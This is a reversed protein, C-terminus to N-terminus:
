INRYNIKLINPAPQPHLDGQCPFHGAAEDRATLCRLTVRCWLLTSLETVLTSSIDLGELQPLTCLDELFPDTLDTYALNLTRLGLLSDWGMQHGSLTLRQLSVRCEPNSALGSLIHAGILGGPVWSAYLEQLRHPCLVLCFAEEFLPNSRICRFHCVMRDNYPLAQADMKHLIQDVMEQPLPPAWSLRRSVDPQMSCFSDLSLCVQA